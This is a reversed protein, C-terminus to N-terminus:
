PLNAILVADGQLRGRSLVLSRGDASWHFDFIREPLEFLKQAKGRIPQRWLSSSKYSGSVYDFADASAWHFVQRPRRADFDFLLPEGKGNIAIVAVQMGDAEDREAQGAALHQYALWKGDPSVSLANGVSANELQLVAVPEGGEIEVRWIASRRGERKAFYIVSADPPAIAPAYASEGASEGLILPRQNTGDHDMRWLARAGSRTSVFVIHRGDVSVRPSTNNGAGSTLQTREGTAPDISVLDTDNGSRSSFIIRGDPMLAIGRYGDRARGGFTVQRAKEKDGDPLVWIHAVTRQQRTVLKRGDESLSLWFYAELDNTLRRPGGGVPSLMWVQSTPEGKLRAAVILRQGDPMWLVKTIDLFDPTQLRTEQGTAVDVEALVPPGPLASLAIALKKGDQSWAPAGRFAYPAPREAIVREGGDDANSVILLNVDRTPDYRAFALLRNDPSISFDTWVNVAVKKLTGGLVSVQYVSGPDVEERFLLHRGDSSFAISRYGKRSPPLTQISTRTAIQQIWVSSEEGDVRVFALTEGDPSITPYVIDGTDTLSQFDVQELPAGGTRPTNGGDSSYRYVAFSGVAMVVAAIGALFVPRSSVLHRWANVPESPVTNETQSVAPTVIYNHGGRNVSLGNNGNESVERVEAVFRYGRKPVTQIYNGNGGTGLAKRLQSVTYTINSEEVYTDQWITELLEERTVIEGHKAVLLALVELSKPFVPVLEGNRWLSRKEPDFRFHDFEYYQRM